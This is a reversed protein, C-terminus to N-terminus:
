LALSDAHSGATVGQPVHDPDLTVQLKARGYDNVRAEFSVPLEYLDGEVFAGYQEATIRVRQASDRAPAGLERVYVGYAVGSKGNMNWENRDKEVVSVIVTGRM